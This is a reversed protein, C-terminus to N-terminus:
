MSAGIAWYHEFISRMTKAYVRSIIEIGFNGRNGLHYTAVTDNYIVIPTNIPLQDESINRGEYLSLFKHCSTFPMAAYPQNILERTKYNAEAALARFREAWAHSGVLQEVTVNGLVLLEGKTKLEHWQMQKMGEFNDYTHVIFSAERRKDLGNLATELRSFAGRQKLLKEEQDILLLELTVPDAANLFLGRDDSSRVILGRKELADVLRYVKTRNIGTRQSLQAHNGPRRLAELYLKAEDQTLNLETLLQIVIMDNKNM